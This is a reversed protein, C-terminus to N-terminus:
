SYSLTSSIDKKEKGEFLCCDKCAEPMQGQKLLQRLERYRLGNWIDALPEEFANGMAMRKQWERRNGENQSCCQIVHGTAFVFPQRHETCRAMPPKPSRADLNWWLNIGTARAEAEAWDRWEPPVECYLGEAEPYFHLMRTLQVAADRSGVVGPQLQRALRFFEDVEAMNAQTVIYHLPMAPVLSRADRKAKVLGEVNAMTKDWKAGVRLAEYTSATAADLSAFIRDIRLKVLEKGVISDILCYNDYLEVYAGRGKCYALMELFDPHLFSEGIGTLGIWRLSPLQDLIRKFEGFPMDIGPEAWHTHECHRCRLHCRTTVEVEIEDPLSKPWKLM